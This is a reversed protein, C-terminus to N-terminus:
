TDDKRTNKEKILFYEKSKKFDTKGIFTLAIIIITRCILEVDYKFSFNLVYYLEMEQKIPVIEEQYLVDDTYKDGETYDFLSAASTLGPKVDLVGKYKGGYMINVSTKPMPRPGVISMDGKIVNFLQPLEDIKLKRIVKGVAFLREEDAIFLGKDASTVHMSRFKYFHFSKNGQTIRDSYYLVPGPSSIKIAIATVAFVPALVIIAIVCLVVDLLRKIIKKYLSEKKM